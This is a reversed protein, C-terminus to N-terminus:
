ISKGRLGRSMLLHKSKPHTSTGSTIEKNKFNSAIFTSIFALNM